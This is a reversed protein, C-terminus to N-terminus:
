GTYVAGNKLTFPGKTTRGNEDAFEKDNSYDAKSKSTPPEDAPNIILIYSVMGSNLILIKKGLMKIKLARGLRISTSSMPTEQVM